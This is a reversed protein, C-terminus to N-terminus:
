CDDGTDFNAAIPEGHQEIAILLYTGLSDLGDYLKEALEWTAVEASRSVPVAYAPVRDLPRGKEPDDVILHLSLDENEFWFRFGGSPDRGNGAIDFRIGMVREVDARLGRAFAECDWAANAPGVRM